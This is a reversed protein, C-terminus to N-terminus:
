ATANLIIGKCLTEKESWPVKGKYEQSLMKFYLQRWLSQIYAKYSWYPCILQKIKVRLQIHTNESIRFANPFRDLKLDAAANAQREM